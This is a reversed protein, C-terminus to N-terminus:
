GPGANPAVSLTTTQSPLCVNDNCAQTTVHLEVPERAATAPPLKVAFRFVAAGSYTETEFNFNPDTSRTVPPGKVEGDLQAEPSVTVRMPAPGDGKQSLSYVKWGDAVEGRLVVDLIQGGDPSSRTSEPVAAWKVVQSAQPTEDGGNCALLSVAVLVATLSRM